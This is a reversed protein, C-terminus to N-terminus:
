YASICEFPESGNIGSSIYKIKKFCERIERMQMIYYFLKGDGKGGQANKSAMEPLLYIMETCTSLEEIKYNGEVKRMGILSPVFAHMKHIMSDYEM